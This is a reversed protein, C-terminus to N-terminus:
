KHHNFDHLNQQYIIGGPFIGCESPPLLKLDHLMIQKQQFYKPPIYKKKFIYSRWNRQILQCSYFNQIISTILLNNRKLHYIFPTENLFNRITLDSGKYLLYLIIQPDTHTHLLTNGLINQYNLDEYYNVYLEM